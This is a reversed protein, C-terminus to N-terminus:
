LVRRLRWILKLVLLLNLLQKFIDKTYLFDVFEEPTTVRAEAEALQPPTPPDAGCKVDRGKGGSIGVAYAPMYPELAFLLLPDDVYIKARRLPRPDVRSLYFARHLRVSNEAKERLGEPLVALLEKLTYPPDLKEAYRGAGICYEVAEPTPAGFESLGESAYLHLFRGALLKSPGYFVLPPRAASM